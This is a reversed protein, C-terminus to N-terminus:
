YCDGPNQRPILFELKTEDAELITTIEPEKRVVLPQYYCLIKSAVLSNWLNNEEFFLGETKQGTNLKASVIASFRQNSIDEDFRRLYEVNGSMVMEMLTVAEYEYVLPVDIMGFTILHRENIFLVEGNRSEGEALEKIIQLGSQNYENHFQPYAHINPVTFILPTILAMVLMTWSFSPDPKPISKRSSIYILPTLILFFAFADMNHLDAGGGIKVSVLAGGLFFIILTFVTFFHQAQSLGSSRMLYSLAYLLPLAYIGIWLLIGLPNSDSPFLRNWLLNSTFSSGAAELSHSNGSLVLYAYQSALATILGIIGWLVPQRLLRIFSTNVRTQDLIYILSVLVAPVPIWNIRSVGAWISGLLIGTLTLGPRNPSYFILPFIIIPVLHYYIGIKLFFLFIFLTVLLKFQISYEKRLFKYTLVLSSAFLLGVWLIYQWGRHTLINTDDWLFPVGQLLYRSPHLISLPYSAGYLEESFLLSAYYYRSAESWGLSFPYTNVESLRNFLEYGTGSFLAFIAFSAIWGQKFAIKTLWVGIWLIWWLFWYYLITVLQPDVTSNKITEGIRFQIKAAPILYFILLMLSGATFRAFKQNSIQLLKPSFRNATQTLIDPRNIILYIVVLSLVIASLYVLLAISWVSRLLVIQLESWRRISTILVILNVIVTLGLNTVWFQRKDRITM